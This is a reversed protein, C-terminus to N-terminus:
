CEKNGIGETLQLLKDKVELQEKKMSNTLLNNKSERNIFSQAIKLAHSRDVMITESACLMKFGGLGDVTHKALESLSEYAEQTRYSGYYRIAKTIENYVDGPEIMNVNKLEALIHNLNAITPNNYEYTHLLKKVALEFIEDDEDKFADLWIEFLMENELVKFKEYQVSIVTLCRILNKKNM